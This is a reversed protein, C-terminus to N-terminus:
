KFPNKKSLRIGVNKMRHRLSLSVMLFFLRQMIAQFEYKLYLDHNLLSVFLIDFMDVIFLEINMVTM